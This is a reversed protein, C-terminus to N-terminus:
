RRPHGARRAPVEERARPGAAGPGFASRALISPGGNPERPPREPGVSRRRADRRRHARRRRRSTAARVAARDRPSGCTADDVSDGVRPRRPPQRRRARQAHEACLGSAPRATKCPGANARASRESPSACHAGNVATGTAQGSRRRQHPISGPPAPRLAPDRWRHAAGIPPRDHARRHRRRRRSREVVRARHTAQDAITLAHATSARHAHRGDRVVCRPAAAPRRGCAHVVAGALAHRCPGHVPANQHRPRSRHRRHVRGVGRRHRVGLCPAM